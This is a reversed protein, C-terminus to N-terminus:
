VFWASRKPQEGVRADALHGKFYIMQFVVDIAPDEEYLICVGVGGGGEDSAVSRDGEGGRGGCTRGVWSCLLLEQQRKM